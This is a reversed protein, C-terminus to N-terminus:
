QSQRSFTKTNTFNTLSQWVIEMRESRSGKCLILDDPTAFKMLEAAAEHPSAVWIVQTHGKQKAADAIMKAKEGVAILVSIEKNAIAQGVQTHGNLSETGLEGMGGLVAIYRGKISIGKMADLAALMSDPNANYTDDLICLGEVERQQMRGPTLELQELNKAIEQLPVGLIHAVASALLANRAMHTGSVPLFFSVKEDDQLLIVKSGEATVEAIEGHFDGEGMGVTCVRAKVSECLIEKYPVDAPIIAVGNEDLNRLLDGKERAINEQTKLFEIHAMGVHTIVGVEPCAIKALPVIEGRHNMGIEFIGLDHEADASLISLPLGIHNNLNGQTKIVKFQKDVASAIMDKTSTKGNSGTVCVVKGGWFKRYAAALDQLAKLVDEVWLVAVESPLQVGDLANKRSVVVGGVGKNVAQEVYDHGDFNEGSLAFFLSGAHMPKRSDTVVESILAASSGQGKQASM